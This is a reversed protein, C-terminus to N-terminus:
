IPFDIQIIGHRSSLHWFLKLGSFEGGDTEDQFVAFNDPTRGSPVRLKEM